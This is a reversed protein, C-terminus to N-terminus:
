SLITPCYYSGNLKYGTPVKEPPIKYGHMACDAAFQDFVAQSGNGCKPKVCSNWVYRYTADINFHGGCMDNWRAGNAHSMARSDDADGLCLV